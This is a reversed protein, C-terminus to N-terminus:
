MHRSVSGNGSKLIDMIPRAIAAFDKIFVSYVSKPVPFKQIAKIKDPDSKTGDESVIFGLYEVSEKFVM